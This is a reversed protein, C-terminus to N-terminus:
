PPPSTASSRAARADGPPASVRRPPSTPAGGAVVLPCAARAPPPPRRPRRPPSPARPLPPPRPPLEPARRPRACPALVPTPRRPPAMTASNRQPLLPPSTAGSPPAAHPRTSPSPPSSRVAPHRPRRASRTRSRRSTRGPGRCRSARRRSVFRLRRHLAGRCCRAPPCRPAPLLPPAPRSARPSIMGRCTLDFARRTGEGWRDPSDSLGFADADGPATIPRRRCLLDSSQGYLHRAPPPIVSPRPCSPM